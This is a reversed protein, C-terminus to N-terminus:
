SLDSFRGHRRVSEATKQRDADCNELGTFAQTESPESLRQPVSFTFTTGEDVVSHVSIEGGMMRVLRRSISLGLGSGAFGHPSEHIGQVYSEFIQELRSEEIGSGTDTIAICAMAAGDDDALRDVCIRIGGQDTHRIANEILNLLIQQLRRRDGRFAVPCDAAYDVVCSLQKDLLSAEMLTVVAAISERLDFDCHKLSLQGSELQSYDLVDEVVQMLEHGTSQIIKAYERQEDDLRTRSMLESIGLLGNLATRMVHSMTALYTSKRRSSREAEERARTNLRSTAVQLSLLVSLVLLAAAIAITFVQNRKLDGVFENENVYTGISWPLDPALFPDIRVIYRESGIEMTGGMSESEAGVFSIAGALIPEVIENGKVLRTGDGDTHVMAGDEGHVILSQDETVVFARGQKGIELSGLFEAVQEIQVDVGIVGLLRQTSDYIPQVLTIGLKGSTFFVYPETWSLQQTELARQYWPRARPDYHDAEDLEDFGGNLEADRYQFRVDRADDEVDISKILFGDNAARSSRAVMFFDGDPQGVFVGTVQPYDRMQNHFLVGLEQDDELDVMGQRILVLTLSALENAPEMFSQINDVAFSSVTQLISQAHGIYTRRANLSTLAILVLMAVIVILAIGSFWAWLRHNRGGFQM